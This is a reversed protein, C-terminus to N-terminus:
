FIYKMAKYNHLEINSVLNQTQFDDLFLAGVCTLLAGLCNCDNKAEDDKYYYYPNLLYRTLHLPGDLRDKIRSDVLYMTPNYTEKVYKRIRIVEKKAVKIQGYIPKM